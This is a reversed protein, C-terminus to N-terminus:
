KFFRHKIAQAPTLRKVPDLELCADVVEALELAAAEEQRGYAHSLDRSVSKAPKALDDRPLSMEKHTAPDISTELFRHQDDFYLPRFVANKVLQKSPLGKYEFLLKLHHNNDRSRLLPKGVALEYLVCGFSFMDLPFSYKVGLIIEPARYFRSVLLPTPEYEHQEMASGLDALKVVARSEDVLINDPKFDAHIIGERKLHILAKLLKFGYVRVAAMNLGQGGTRKLLQRLNLDMPEFVLCLHDRDLFDRLLRINNFKGEHDTDRL